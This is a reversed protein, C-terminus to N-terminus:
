KKQEKTIAEKTLQILGHKIGEELAKQAIFSIKEQPTKTPDNLLAISQQLAVGKSFWSIFNLLENNNM